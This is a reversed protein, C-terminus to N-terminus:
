LPFPMTSTLRKKLGTYNDLHTQLSNDTQLRQELGNLEARQQQLLSKIQEVAWDVPTMERNARADFWIGREMVPLWVTTALKEHSAKKRPLFVLPLEFNWFTANGFVFHQQILDSYSREVACWGRGQRLFSPTIFYIVHRCKLLGSRLAELSKTALPYDQWDFWPLVNQMALQQFVPLVLDEKDERCHSLFVDHELPPWHEIRWDASM